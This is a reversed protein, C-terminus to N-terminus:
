WKTEEFRHLYGLEREGEEEEKQEVEYVNKDLDKYIEWERVVEDWVRERLRLPIEKLWFKSVANQM